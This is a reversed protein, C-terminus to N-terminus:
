LILSFRNTTENNLLHKNSTSPKEPEKVKSEGIETNNSSTFTDRTSSSIESTPTEQGTAIELKKNTRRYICYKNKHDDLNGYPVPAHCDRCQVVYEDIIRRVAINPLM